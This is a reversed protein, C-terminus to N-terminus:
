VVVTTQTSLQPYSAMQKIGCQGPGKKATREIRIYGNEGWNAGWSNKIKWYDVGNETGSGVALVGHDLSSGCEKTLIGGTYLQFNSKDAEIGVSVPQKAIAEMLAKTDAVPVDFYGTITKPPVAITCNSERCTKGQATKYPYSADTCSGHDKLYSFATDMDGGGCGHNDGDCDVLQQESLSVLKGTAIQWAGEVAGTTSFSWCSGCTGQNKPATVAGKSVWDVESPLKKGSYRDTGLKILSGWKNGEPVSLGFRTSTFEHPAQDAFENVGLTFSKNLANQEEIHQFNAAFIAFRKEKEEANEYTRGYKTIFDEFAVKVDSTALTTTSLLACV